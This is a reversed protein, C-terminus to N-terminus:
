GETKVLDPYQRRYYSEWDGSRLAEWWGRNDVYWQVTEEMREEWSKAPKWGLALLPKCSLAYRRDHGPRDTVRRILSESKGTLELIRHTVDRNTKECMGGINYIQGKEGRQIILDIAACHDEVALWDRVQLGDGYMPLPKDQMANTVFLPILKEPHQFPGFNNSARTIIVPLKYTTWYSRVLLDGSAKSAAYPSSPNIQSEESFLGEDISGYVEDTSIQVYRHIGYKRATELLVHTGVIDTQIFADPDEISRDVHTEAAFNVVADCGKMEREVLFRDVIDGRVFSLREDDLLEALNAKNGAYTLKDYVLVRSKPHKRMIHRVFNSGIFGAGGAIFFKTIEM